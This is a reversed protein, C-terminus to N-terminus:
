SKQLQVRLGLGSGIHFVLGVRVTVRVVVSSTSCTMRVKLLLPRLLGLAAHKVALEM